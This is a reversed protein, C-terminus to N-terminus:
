SNHYESKDGKEQHAKEMDEKCMMTEDGPFGNCASHNCSEDYDQEFDLQSIRNLEELSSKTYVETLKKCSSKSAFKAPLDRLKPQFDPAEYDFKPYVVGAKFEKTGIPAIASLLENL